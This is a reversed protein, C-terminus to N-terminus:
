AYDGGGVTSLFCSELSEDKEQMSSNTTLVYEM